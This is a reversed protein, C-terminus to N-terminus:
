IMQQMTTNGGVTRDGIKILYTKDAVTPHRLVLDVSEGLNMSEFDLVGGDIAVSNDEMVLPTNKGLMADLDMDIM